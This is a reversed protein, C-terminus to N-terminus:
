HRFHRIGTTYLSVGYHNCCEVADEDRVSGGPHAIAQVGAKCAMEVSDNWAFPFFADSALTAGEAEWGAKELAIEASKVRNPQGSGVGLLRGDKTLAIANSKVHKVCSWALQLDESIGEDVKSACSFGVEESHVDDSNQVLMGGGVQRMSIGGKSRPQAELIRLNNSKGKLMDLGEDTFSTAIVIEYFMRSEGDIPSRLMWRNCILAVSSFRMLISTILLESGSSEYKELLSKTLQKTSPSSVVLHV